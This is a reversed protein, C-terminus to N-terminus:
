LLMYILGTLESTSHPYVKRMSSFLEKYPNRRLMLRCVFLRAHM